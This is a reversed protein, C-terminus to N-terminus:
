PVASILRPLAGILGLERRVDKEVGVVDKLATANVTPYETWQRVISGAVLPDSALNPAVSQLTRFRTKVIKPDEHHLAPTERMMQAFNNRAQSKERIKRILHFGGYLGAAAAGGLALRTGFGAKEAIGKAAGGGGRELRRMKDRMFDIMKSQQEVKGTARQARNQLLQFMREPSPAPPRVHTRTVKPRPMVGKPLGTEIGPLGMQVGKPAEFKFGQRAAVEPAKTMKFKAGPPVMSRDVVMKVANGKRDPMTIMVKDAQKVMGGRLIDLWDM